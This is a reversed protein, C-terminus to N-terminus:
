YFIIILKNKQYNELLLPIMLNLLVLNLNKEKQLFIKLKKQKKKEKKPKEIEKIKGKIKEKIEKSKVQEKMKEVNRVKLSKRNVISGRKGKNVISKRKQTKVIVSKIDLLFKINKNLNKHDLICFIILLIIIIIFIISMLIEGINNKIKSFDFILKYCKLVRFNSHSLSDFFKQEIEKKNFIKDFSFDTIVKTSISCICKAKKNTSNYSQLDSGTQCIAKSQSTTYIDKKRDSLLIDTGNESTYPTCIDHYFSDSKNFLNYGSKELSSYLTEVEIDMVVPVNLSIQEQSCVELNLIHLDLPDYVEFQIFTNTGNIKIDTKYIILSEELPINNESKLINECEGLNINSVDLEDPNEQDKTTSLQVIVNKTKIIINEKTYNQNLLNNKISEMQSNTIQEDCKNNIIDENTCNNIYITNEEIISETVFEDNVNETHFKKTETLINTNQNPVTSEPLISEETSVKAIKTSVKAIETSIKAIETSVKAIETSITSEKNPTTSDEQPITIEKTSILSSPSISTIEKLITEKQTLGTTSITIDTSGILEGTQINTEKTFITTENSIDTVKNTIVETPKVEKESM